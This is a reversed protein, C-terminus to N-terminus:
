NPVLLCTGLTTLECAPAVTDLADIHGSDGFVPAFLVEGPGILSAM